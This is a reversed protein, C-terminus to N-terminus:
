KKKLIQNGCSQYKCTSKVQPQNDPPPEPASLLSSHNIIEPYYEWSRLSGQKPQSVLLLPRTVVSDGGATNLERKVPPKLPYKPSCSWVASSCAQKEGQQWSRPEYGGVSVHPLFFLIAHKAQCAARKKAFTTMPHENCGWNQM